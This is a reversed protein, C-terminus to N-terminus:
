KTNSRPGLAKLTMNQTIADHAIFVYVCPKANHNLIYESAYKCWQAAVDKKALVQPHDIEDRNKPELMYIIEETGVM